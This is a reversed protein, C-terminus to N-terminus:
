AISNYDLSNRLLLPKDYTRQFLVGYLTFTGDKSSGFRILHPLGRGFAPFYGYNGTPPICLWGAACLHLQDCLQTRQFTEPLGSQELLPVSYCVQRCMRWLRAKRARALDCFDIALDLPTSVAASAIPRYADDPGCPYPPTSPSMLSWGALALQQNSFAVPCGTVIFGSRVEEVLASSSPLQLPPCSAEVSSRRTLL